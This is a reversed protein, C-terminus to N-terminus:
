GIADLCHPLDLEHGSSPLYSGPTRTGPVNYAVQECGHLRICSRQSLVRACETIVCALSLTDTPAICTAVWVCALCRGVM